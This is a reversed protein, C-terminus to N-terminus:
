IISLLLKLDMHRLKMIAYALGNPREQGGRRNEFVVASKLNQLTYAIVLTFQTAFVYTFQM